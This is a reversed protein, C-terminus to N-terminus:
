KNRAAQTRTTPVAGNAAIARLNGLTEHVLQPMWWNTLWVPIGGGPDALLRYMVRVARGDNIPELLYEGRVSRMRVIRPIHLRVQSPINEFALHVRGEGDTDIRMRLVVDRDALPWPAGMRLYVARDSTRPGDFATVEVCGAIWADGHDLDELLARVNALAAAIQTDGRFESLTEPTTLREEVRIGDENSTLTWGQDAGFAVAAGL